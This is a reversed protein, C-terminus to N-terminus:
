REPLGAKRLGALLRERQALFAPRDSMMEARHQAVSYGPWRGLLVKVAARSDEHLGSVAYAMALTEYSRPWPRPVHVSREALILGQPDQEMHLYALALNRIFTSLRPDRPSLEIATEMPRVALHSNGMLIHVIGVWQHALALNPNLAMQRELAGLAEEFRGQYALAAGLSWNASRDDPDLALAKRSASEAENIAKQRDRAARSALAILNANAVMVWAFTCEPDLEIARLALNRPEGTTDPATRHWLSFARTALDHADPNTRRERESRESEARLLEIHLMHAVKAAMSRQLAGLNARSAEFREVWVVRADRTDSVSLNVAIENDGRRVSGEVLYNIGLERGVERTDVKRGAYTQATGRSIVFAGPIRGLDTTLDETLGEAFYDQDPDGGLNVLPLVMLSRDRNIKPRAGAQPVPPARQVQTELMYGRRHLTKLLTEQADGLERRIEMVCQALSNETVVLDPWVERLLDEKGVVESPHDLLYQLVSATRPRLNVCRGGVTLAGGKPDFSAGAFRYHNEM